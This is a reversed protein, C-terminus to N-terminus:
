LSAQVERPELDSRDQGRLEVNRVLAAHQAGFCEAVALVRASPFRRLVCASGWLVLEKLVVARAFPNCPPRRRVLFVSQHM